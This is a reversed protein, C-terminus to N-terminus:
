FYKFVPKYHNREVINLKNEHTSSLHAEGRNLM